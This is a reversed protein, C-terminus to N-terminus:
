QDWDRLYLIDRVNLYYRTELKPNVRLGDRGMEEPGLASSLKSVGVVAYIDQLSRMRGPCSNVDVM